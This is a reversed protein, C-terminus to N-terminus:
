STPYFTTPPTFNETYRALGKSIRLAGMNGDFYQSSVHSGMSPGLTAGTMDTSDTATSGVQVGNMFVRLDTGSRCLALHYQLSDTIVFAETFITADGYGVNIKDGASPNMQIWWGRATSESDYCSILVQAFNSVDFLVGLEITFDGTGFDWDAHDPYTIAGGGGGSGPFRITNEGLYQVDTDVEPNGVFTEDHASNSLDTINTAEDAGAFDLLLVVSGFDSLETPYFESPPTFNTTYRGVGKTLRVAGINGTVSETSVRAAGVNFGTTGQFIKGSWTTATGLEVGDVFMRLSNSTRCVAIHYWTDTSPVWTEAKESVGTNVFILEGGSVRIWAGVTGDFNSLLSQTGATSTFRVGCEWTFDINALVEWDIDSPFELRGTSGALILTNVGLFTLDTDLVTSGIFTEVHASNSLDTTDTGEDAGAFDLLLTVQNFFDDGSPAAPAAGGGAGARLDRARVAGLGSLFRRAM